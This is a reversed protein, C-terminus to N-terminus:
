TYYSIKWVLKRSEEGQGTSRPGGVSYETRMFCFATGLFCFRAKVTRFLCKMMGPFSAEGDHEGRICEGICIFTLLAFLVVYVIFYVVAAAADMARPVGSVFCGKLLM